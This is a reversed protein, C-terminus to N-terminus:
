RLMKERYEYAKTHNQFYEQIAIQTNKEKYKNLITSMIKEIYKDLMKKREKAITNPMISSKVQNEIRIIAMYARDVEEQIHELLDLGKKRFRKGDEMMITPIQKIVNLETKQNAELTEMMKLFDFESQMTDKRKYLIKNKDKSVQLYDIEELRHIAAVITTKDGGVKRVISNVNRWNSTNELIKNDHITTLIL